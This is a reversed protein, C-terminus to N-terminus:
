YKKVGKQPANIIYCVISNIDVSKSMKKAIKKIQKKRTKNNDAGKKLHMLLIVPYKLFTLVKKAIKATKQRKKIQNPKTLGTKFFISSLTPNHM